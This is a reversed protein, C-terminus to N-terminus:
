TTGRSHCSAECKTLDDLTRQMRRRAEGEAGDLCHTYIRLLVDVSHGTWEAVRKPEIGANLWTSICAHRLDCPRKALTSTVQTATLTRAHEKRFEASTSESLERRLLRLLPPRGPYHWARNPARPRAPRARTTGARPARHGRATSSDVHRARRATTPM